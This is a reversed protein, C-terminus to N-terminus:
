TYAKEGKFQLYDKSDEPPMVNPQANETVWDVYYEM